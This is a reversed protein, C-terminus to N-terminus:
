PKVRKFEVVWVWPNAAWAETGNISRWLDMYGLRHSWEIGGSGDPMLEGDEVAEAGEAICDNESIDQLREVRVGTVELNIRSVWRPMHISPHWGDRVSDWEFGDPPEADSYLPLLDNPGDLYAMDARYELGDRAGERPCPRCGVGWTERVWLREGPAGYPCLRMAEAPGIENGALECGFDRDKLPLKLVRRTQTKRGELIARVMPASFLIPREKM